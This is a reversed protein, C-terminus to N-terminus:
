CYLIVVDKAEMESKHDLLLKVTDHDGIEAARHMLTKGDKFNVDITCYPHQSCITALAKAYNFKEDGRQMHVSKINKFLVLHEFADNVSYLNFVEFNIFDRSLPLLDVRLKRAVSLNMKKFWVCSGLLDVLSKSIDKGRIDVHKKDHKIRFSLSNIEIGQYCLSIEDNCFERIEAETVAEGFVKIRPKVISYYLPIIFTITGFFWGVSILVRKYSEFKPVTVQHIM